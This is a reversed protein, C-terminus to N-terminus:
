KKEKRQIVQLYLFLAVGPWFNKIWIEAQFDLLFQFM